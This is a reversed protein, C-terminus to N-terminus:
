NIRYGCLFSLYWSHSQKFHKPSKWCMLLKLIDKYCRGVYLATKPILTSKIFFFLSKLYEHFGQSSNKLLTQVLVWNYQAVITCKFTIKKRSRPLYNLPFSCKRLLCSARLKFGRLSHSFSPTVKQVQLGLMQHCLSIAVPLKNAPWSTYGLPCTEPSVAQRLAIRCLYFCYVQTNM